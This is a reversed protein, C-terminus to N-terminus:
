WALTLAISHRYLRTSDIFVIYLPLTQRAAICLLPSSVANCAAHVCMSSQLTGHPAYWVSPMKSLNLGAGFVGPSAALGLKNARSRDAVFDDGLLSAAGASAFGGACPNRVFKKPALGL